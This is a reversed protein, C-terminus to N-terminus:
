EHENEKVLVLKIDFKNPIIELQKKAYEIAQEKNSAKVTLAGDFWIQYDKM